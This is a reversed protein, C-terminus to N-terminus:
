SILSNILYFTKTVNLLYKFYKFYKFIQKLKFGIILRNSTDDFLYKFFSKQWINAYHSSLM